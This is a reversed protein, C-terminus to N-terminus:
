GFVAEYLMGLEDPGIPVLFISLRGLSDHEVGYIGQPWRTERPTRFAISFPARKGPKAAAPPRPGLPTVRVLRAELSEAPAVIRFSENLYPSFDSETLTALRDDGSPDAM